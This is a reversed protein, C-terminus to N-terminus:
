FKKTNQISQWINQMYVPLPADISVTVQSVPDPFQINTAHLAHSKLQSERAGYLTDGLIPHGLNSLHVRIQHTRGTELQLEVISTQATQELVHYHTIAVEGNKSVRRRQPHHRDRGIPERITGQRKSLRGEVIALYTRKIRKQRLAEDLFVHAYENKAYLLAGSTDRDLRHIHRVECRQETLLYHYAVTNALSHHHDPSDPHVLIGSPKNVVLCFDDEWLVELPEDQVQFVTPESPFLHLWIKNGRVRVGQSNLLRQWHSVPLPLHSQVYSFADDALESWANGPSPIGWWEQKRM